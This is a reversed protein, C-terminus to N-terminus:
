YMSLNKVPLIMLTCGIPLPLCSKCWGCPLHYIVKVRWFTTVIKNRLTLTLSYISIATPELPYKATKLKGYLDGDAELKIALVNELVDNVINLYPISIYTNESDLPLEKIDVRRNEQNFKPYEF